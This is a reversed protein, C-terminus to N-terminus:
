RNFSRPSSIPAQAAAALVTVALGFTLFKYSTYITLGLLASALAALVAPSSWRVRAIVMRGLAAVFLATFFVGVIGAKLLLYSILSHTYGVRYGGVAPSIFDAGWGAGVMFHWPDDGLRDLVAAIEAFRSNVGVLRTKAEILGILMQLEAAFVLALLAAIAFSWLSLVASRRLRSLALVAFALVALALAGRQLTIALAALSLMGGALASAALVLGAISPRQLLRDAAWVPLAIAAFLVAPSSALYLLGDSGGDGIALGALLFYRLAFLCGVVALATALPPLLRAAAHHDPPLLFLPLFFFLLPILDRAISAASHGAIVGQLSPVILLWSLALSAWFRWGHGRSAGTARFLEAGIVTRFGRWLGIAAILCLGVVAEAPGLGDPTPSSFLGYVSLAAALWFASAPLSAVHKVLGAIM